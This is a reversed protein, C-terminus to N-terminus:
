CRFLVMVTGSLKLQVCLVHYRGMVSLDWTQHLAVDLTEKSEWTDELLFYSIVLGLQELM